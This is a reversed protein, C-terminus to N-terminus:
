SSEQTFLADIAIVVTTPHQIFVLVYYMLILDIERNHTVADDVIRVYNTLSHGKM